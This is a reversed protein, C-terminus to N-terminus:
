RLKIEALTSYEAGKPSLKSRMLKISSVTIKGIEIEKLKRILAKLKENPMAVRAITLHAKPKRKEERIKNLNDDAKQMLGLFKEKNKELGIWIVRMYNESPFVGVGKVSVEFAEEKLTSLFTKVEEIQNEDIEGLFKITLHLNNPNVLRLNAGTKEIEQQIEKIKAKTRNPVAVAIFCRM